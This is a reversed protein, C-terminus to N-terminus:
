WGGGGGGGGGGGSSGGSSGSSSSSPAPVSSQFSGAMSSATQSVSSSIHRIEFSRGSYWNPHYSAAAAAGAATSLWREFTTAWPKEVDLAVAYPLLEEFHVTTMDPVGTMNLRDKEAVSLYLKLGEIQDLVQRGRLTPAGIFAIACLNTWALAAVVFPVAVLTELGGTALGALQAAGFLAVGIIGMVLGVRLVFNKVPLLLLGFAAPFVIAFVSLFLFLIMFEQENPFQPALFFLVVLTLLSVLIGPVLYLGNSKFFVNHNEGSIANTFADGLKKVSRGNAKNLTLPKGRKDLWRELAAEGKPLGDGPARGARGEADLSLTMDGDQEELNLRKKVALSLCAATLAVWGGDGFGRRDIYRALAPSIDAPPTFRPFIVGKEPDRGVKLWAHLYWAIVLLVGFGGILDARYDALFRQFWAEQSPKAVSGVPMTVVVSLGELVQLTQSTTFLVETGSDNTRATYNQGTDGFEGTFATWGTAKVGEPLIVRAVVQDIPFDWDNGTVNWYLEDHEDFYRIQRDTEYTLKYSHIGQPVNRNEDGIYIRIGKNNDRIFHPAPQGDLEVSLLKFGVRYHRGNAARATLPIDRYIGRDIQDWEARVTISETVTLTGDAGVEIDSLYKLIREDAQAAIGAFLLFVASLLVPFFRKLIM